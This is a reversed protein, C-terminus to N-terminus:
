PTCRIFRLHDLYFGVVFVGLLLGIVALLRLTNM